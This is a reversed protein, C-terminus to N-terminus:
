PCIRNVAGVMTKLSCTAQWCPLLSDIDGTTMCPLTAAATIESTAGAEGPQLRLLGQAPPRDVTIKFSALSGWDLPNEQMNWELSNATQAVQWDRSSTVNTSGFAAETQTAGPPILSSVAAIQRDFDLNMLAIDYTYNGDGLDTAQSVIQLHGEGTDLKINTAGLQAWSEVAPGQVTTGVPIFTWLGGPNPIVELHGMSNYIDIDGQVIYWLEIFFRADPTLLDAEAVTLRHALADHEASDDSGCNSHSPHDRMGDVPTGDFHSGMPEWTGSHATLEDRPGLHWRNDNTTGGYYDGCGQFLIQAGIRCTCDGDDNSNIAFFAHKLDSQGLQTIAGDAIMYFHLTLYPHQGVQNELTCYFGPFRDEIARFWAVDSVGVNKLGAGATIAVQGNLRASQSVNDIRTLLVDVDGNFNPSCGKTTKLYPDPVDLYLLIDAGGAITGSLHPKGLRNALSSTITIDMYRINIMRDKWLTHPHGHSLRFWPFGERDVLLFNEPFSEAILEFHTLSFSSNPSDFTIVGEHRLAGSTFGTFQGSESEFYLEPAPFATFTLAKPRLEPATPAAFSLNLGMAELIAPRFVLATEASRVDIRTPSAWAISVLAVMLVGFKAM